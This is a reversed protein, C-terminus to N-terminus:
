QNIIFEDSKIGCLSKIQIRTTASKENPLCTLIPLGNAQELFFARQKKGNLFVTPAVERRDLLILLSDSGIQYTADRIEAKKCEIPPLKTDYRVVCMQSDSEGIIVLKGDPQLAAKKPFLTVGDFGIAVKGSEGFMKDLTGDQNYRVVGASSGYNNTGAAILIRGDAQIKAAIGYDVTVNFDTTVVGNRGFRSDLSGNPLFRMVLVDISTRSVFTRGTAIIKGDTQLTVDNIMDISSVRDVRVIGEKGFNFDLKGDSVYRAVFSNTTNGNQSQSVIMYGGVVIKGDSQIILSEISEFFNGISTSTVGNSGFGRDITGDQNLQAIVLDTELRGRLNNGTFGGIVIKGEKSVGIAKAVNVEKGSNIVALGGVGFDTDLTGDPNVRVVLLNGSSDNVSSTGAILLKGDAQLTAALAIESGQTLAFVALGKNAFSQDVSGDVDLRIITFSFEESNSPVRSSGVVLIKGDNQIVVDSVERGLFPQDFVFRGGDGFTPDFKGEPLYRIILIHSNGGFERDGIALLKGDEQQALFSIFDKQVGFSTRIFGQFGFSVDLEGSNLIKMLLCDELGNNDMDVSGGVYLDGKADVTIAQPSFGAIAGTLNVFGNNGFGTDLEGNSNFRYVIPLRIAERLSGPKGANYTTLFIIKRNSLEKVIFNNGIFAPNNIDVEGKKGFSTDMTLDEQNLRIILITSQRHCIILLKGDEQFGIQQVFSPFTSPSIVVGSKGFSNDLKGERTIRSSIVTRVGSTIVSFIQYDGNPLVQLLKPIFFVGVRLSADLKLDAILQGNVGFTEDLSGDSNLQVAFLLITAVGDITGSMSSIVLIKGNELVKLVGPFVSKSSNIVNYGIKNFSKDLTGDTNYRIIGIRPALPMPEPSYVEGLIVIKGDPQTTIGKAREYLPQRISQTLNTVVKGGAFTPDIKPEEGKVSLLCVLLMLSLVPIIRRILLLM